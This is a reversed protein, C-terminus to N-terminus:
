SQAPPILPDRKMKRWEQQLLLIEDQKADPTDPQSALHNLSALERDIYQNRLTLLIDAVQAKPDPIKRQEALAESALAQMRSDEFESLMAAAGRWTNEAHAKLIKDVIERVHTHVIWQLNVYPAFEVPAEDDILLIKLLWFEKTSPRPLEPEAADFSEGADDTAEVFSEEEEWRSPRPARAPKTKAFESRMADPSVGLRLATQQAYRDVVVSNGTKRVAEAMSKVIISRGMDSGLDNEECLLRLYFDFFGEAQDILAQFAEPGNEKIFSDPDHPSPVTAVRISFGAPLLHDLSRIAAKQGAADSDFCLVVEEAYRKLIRAQDSTFATGQPAVVNKVGSVFCAIMDLQGECVIATKADLMPRKAKDLGFIVKGKTFLPTEPSNVYKAAKADDALIRGSFGIVRGQEDCIPFILRGRFRDYYRDTGEKHVILGGEAVEALDFKQAKAWNVTDDWADPAYGIRFVEVAEQSIGRKALYDRAVQGAAETALANQWRKAVQEHINRLVDKTQRSKQQEPSVSFELVIGARDALRKMAEPFNLNEYLMVFKFVDGGTNCGFCHFSQRSPNVHFSPTKEKHFPCLASFDGGSRKLPFYSGIVDVIDSADRIQERKDDSILGAM